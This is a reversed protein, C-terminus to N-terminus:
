MQVATLNKIAKPSEGAENVATVSVFWDACFDLREINIERQTVNGSFVSQNLSNSVSVIYRSTPCQSSDHWSIHWKGEQGRFIFDTPENPVPFILFGAACNQRFKPFNNHASSFGFTKRAHIMKHQWYSSVVIVLTDCVNRVKIDIFNRSTHYTAREKDGVYVVVRFGITQPCDSTYNWSIRVFGSASLDSRTVNEVRAFNRYRSYRALQFMLRGTHLMNLQLIDCVLSETSDRTFVLNIQLNTHKDFVTWNSNLYFTLDVSVRCSRRDKGPESDRLIGVANFEGSSSVTVTMTKVLFIILYKNADQSLWSVPNTRSATSENASPSPQVITFNTGFRHVQGVCTALTNTKRQPAQQ